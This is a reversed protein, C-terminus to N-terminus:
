MERKENDRIVKCPNGYAIVGAPIDRTVVSGMGIFSNAGISVGDKICCGTGLICSRGIHVNGSTTVGPNVEAYEEIDNHHGICSGRKITVGFGIKTQSSIIVGPELLIGTGIETSTALYSRPHALNIFRSHDIKNNSKFYEYVLAKGRPGTVGFFLSNKALSVNEGQEHIACRYFNKNFELAPEGEVPINKIIRFNRIGATEYAIDFIVALYAMSCGLFDLEEM